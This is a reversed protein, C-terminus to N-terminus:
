VFVFILLLLSSDKQMFCVIQVNKSHFGKINLYNNEEVSPKLIKIHTCDICGIVGPFRTEEMFRFKKERKEETTVPFKIWEQKLHEFIVNTMEKICNSVSSQCMQLSYRQGLLRQYGGTAFFNLAAFLKNQPSLSTAGGNHQMFPDLSELIVSVLEKSVRFTRIFEVDEMEFVNHRNRRLRREVKEKRLRRAREIDEVLEYLLMQVPLM